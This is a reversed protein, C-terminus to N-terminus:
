LDGGIEFEEDEFDYEGDYIQENNIRTRHDEVKKIIDNFDLPNTVKKLDVFDIDLDVRDEDTINNITKITNFINEDNNRYNEDKERQSVDFVQYYKYLNIIFEMFYSNVDSSIGANNILLNMFLNQLINGKKKDSIDTLRSIMDVDDLTYNYKVKKFDEDFNVYKELFQLGVMNKINILNQKDRLIQLQVFIDTLYQRLLDKRMKEFKHEIRIKEKDDHAREFEENKQNNYVGLESLFNFLKESNVDETEELSSESSGSKAFSLLYTKILIKNVYDKINKENIEILDKYEKPIKIENYKYEYIDNPKGKDIKKLELFKKEMVKFEETDPTMLTEINRGDILSYGAFTFEQPTGDLARKLFYNIISKKIDEDSKIIKIKIIDQSIRGGIYKLKMKTQTKNTINKFIGQYKMLTNKVEKDKIIELDDLKQRLTILDIDGVKRKFFHNQYKNMYKESLYTFFDFIDTDVITRKEEKNILSDFKPIPKYDEIRHLYDLAENLKIKKKLKETIYSANQYLNDFRKSIIQYINLQKYNEIKKFLAGFIKKGVEIFYKILEDKTYNVVNAFSVNVYRNTSELISHILIVIIYSLELIEKRLEYGKAGMEKKLESNVFPMIIEALKRSEFDPRGIAFLYDNIKNIIHYESKTTIGERIVGRDNEYEIGEVDGLEMRILRGCNSCVVSTEDDALNEFKQELITKIKEKEKETEAKPLEIYLLYEHLCALDRSKCEKNNTEPYIFLNKDNPNPIMVEGKKDKRGYKELLKSLLETKRSIDYATDFAFRLRDFDCPVDKQSIRINYEKRFKDLEELEKKDLLDIVNKNKIRSEEILKKYRNEGLIVIIEWYLKYLKIENQIISRDITNIYVQLNNKRISFDLEENITREDPKESDMLYYILGLDPTRFLWRNRQLDSDSYKGFYPYKGYIKEVKPNELTKKNFATNELPIAKTNDKFSIKEQLKILESQYKQHVESKKIVFEKYINAVNEVIKHFEDHDKCPFDTKTFKMDVKLKLSDITPYEAIILNNELLYRPDLKIGILKINEEEYGVRYQSTNSSWVMRTNRLTLNIGNKSDLNDQFDSFAKIINDIDNQGSISKRYDSINQEFDSIKQVVIGPEDVKNYVIQYDDTMPIIWNVKFLGKKMDNVINEGEIRSLNKLDIIDDIVQRRKFDQPYNTLLLDNLILSLEDDTVQDWPIYEGYEVEEAVKLSKKLRKRETTM